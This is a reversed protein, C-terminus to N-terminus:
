LAQFDVLIAVCVPVIETITVNELSDPLRQPGIYATVNSM